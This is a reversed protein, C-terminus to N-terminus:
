GWSIWGAEWQGLESAGIAAANVDVPATVVTLITM